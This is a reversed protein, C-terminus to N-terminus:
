VVSKRDQKIANSLLENIIVAVPFANRTDLVFSDIEKNVTVGSSDSLTGMMEDVLDNFYEDAKIEKYHESGARYLKDYLLQMGRVENEAEKLKLATEQIQAADSRLLLLSSITSMNNKIRHHVEKLLVEKENLLQEIRREAQKKQHCERCFVPREGDPEFPLETITAGCGSCTWNGQVMPRSGGNGQDDM